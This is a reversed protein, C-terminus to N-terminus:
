KTTFVKRCLQAAFDRAMQAEVDALTVFQYNMNTWGATSSKIDISTLVARSEADLLRATGQLTSAPGMNDKFSPSARFYKTIDVQLITPYDGDACKALKASVEKEFVGQFADTSKPPSNVQIASVTVRRAAAPATQALAWSPAGSAALASLALTIKRLRM